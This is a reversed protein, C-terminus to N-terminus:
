VFLRSNLQILLNATGFTDIFALCFYMFIPPVFNFNFPFFLFFAFALSYMIYVVPLGCIITM